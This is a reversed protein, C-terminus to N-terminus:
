GTLGVSRPSPNASNVDVYHVDALAIGYCALLLGAASLRAALMQSHNQKNM